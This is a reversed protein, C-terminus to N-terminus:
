CVKAFTVFLESWRSIFFTYERYLTDGRVEGRRLACEEGTVGHHLQRPAQHRLGGDEDHVETEWMGRVDAAAPSKRLFLLISPEESDERM